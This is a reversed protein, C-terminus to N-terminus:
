KDIGALFKWRHLTPDQKQGKSSENRSSLIISSSKSVAESLSNPRANRSTSGVTSQLTEFIVKAEEITEANTVAEALKQKQRENLSDSTLAKNQYLLKANDLNVKDLKEDLTQVANKLKTMFVSSKNLTNTLKKNQTAITENVVNLEKVAKRLAANEERVESDQELALLEEEALSFEGESMALNGPVPGLDVKLREYIAEEMGVGGAAEIDGRGHPYPMGMNNMMEELEYEELGEDFEAPLKRGKSNAFRKAADSHKKGAVDGAFGFDGEDLDEEFYDEEMYGEELEDRGYYDPEAHMELNARIPNEPDTEVYHGSMPLPTGDASRFQGHETEDDDFFGEELEYEDLGEEFYDEEMGGYEFIEEEQLDMDEIVVNGVYGLSESLSAIESLLGDLPIEIEKDDDMETVALPIHEMISSEEAAPAADPGAGEPPAGAAMPDEEQELLTEVAKKIEGSFKELVLTEANKVAAEKLAEADIIAQELMDSM